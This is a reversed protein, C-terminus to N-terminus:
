RRPAGPPPCSQLAKVPGYIPILAAFIGQPTTTIQGHCAVLIGQTVGFNIAELGLFPWPFFNVGNARAPAATLTLAAALALASVIKKM